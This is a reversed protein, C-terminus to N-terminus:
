HNFPNKFTATLRSARQGILSVLTVAAQLPDSPLRGRLTIPPHNVLRRQKQTHNVNCSIRGTQGGPGYLMESERLAKLTYTTSVSRVIIGADPSFQGLVANMNSFMSVLYSWPIWDWATAGISTLGLQSALWRNPNSLIIEASWTCRRTGQITESIKPNGSSEYSHMVNERASGRVHARPPRMLALVEMAQYIDQVLPFWGFKAELILNSAEDSHYRFEKRRRRKSDLSRELSKDIKKARDVIMGLSERWQLATILMAAQAKDLKAYYRQGAINTLSQNQLLVGPTGRGIGIGGTGTHTSGRQAFHTILQHNLDFRNARLSLEGNIRPSNDWLKSQLEFQVNERNLTRYNVFNDTPM